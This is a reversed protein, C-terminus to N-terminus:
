AGLYAAKVKPDAAVEAAAGSGVVTGTELIYARDAVALAQTAMQEVLLITTGEAALERIIGFIQEVVIPALGLSPEDLLLFRPRSMLGRGMALMQQEGGSLLGAPQSRRRGLVPFREYVRAVDEAIAGRDRRRYAGLELNEGVSSDPFVRRGEPVHAMGMRAIAHAPKRTVDKGLFTVQGAVKKLLESMGSVTKLTTSKGAGNGGIITVVEGEDVDLGVGHLVQAAGYSVFLDRVSLITESM